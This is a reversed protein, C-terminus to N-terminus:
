LVDGRGVMVTASGQWKGELFALKMMAAKQAAVDPQQGPCVIALAALAALLRLPMPVNYTKWYPRGLGSGRKAGNVRLAATLFNMSSHQVNRAALHFARAQGIVMGGFLVRSAPNM